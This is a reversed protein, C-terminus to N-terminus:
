WPATGDAAPAGAPQGTTPKNEPPNQKAIEEFRSINEATANARQIGGAPDNIWGVKARTKGEFVEHEVEYIIENGVLMEGAEIESLSFGKWGCRRLKEVTYDIVSRGTSTVTEAMSMFATIRQDPVESNQIQVFIQQAGSKAESVGHGTITGRFGKGEPHLNENELPM